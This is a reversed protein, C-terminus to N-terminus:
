DRRKEGSGAVDLDIRIAAEASEVPETPYLSGRAVPDLIEDPAKAM